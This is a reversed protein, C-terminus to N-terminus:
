KNQKIGRIIMMKIYDEGKDKVLDPLMTKVYEVAQKRYKDSKPDINDDIIDDAYSIANDIVREIKNLEHTYDEMKIRDKYAVIYDRIYKIIAGAFATGAATALTVVETQLNELM